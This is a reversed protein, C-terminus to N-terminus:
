YISPMHAFRELDMTLCPEGNEAIDSGFIGNPDIIKNTVLKGAGTKKLGLITFLDNLEKEPPDDFANGDREEIFDMNFMNIATKIAQMDSRFYRGGLTDYCLYGLGNGTQEVYTLETYPDRTRRKDNAIEEQFKKAKKKGIYEAIKEDRRLLEEEFIGCAALALNCNADAKEYKKFLFIDAAVTILVSAATSAYHPAATTIVEMRTPNEKKSYLEELSAMAKPTAKASLVATTVTGLGVIISAFLPSKRLAEEAVNNLVETLM